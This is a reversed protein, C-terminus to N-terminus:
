AMEKKRAVINDMIGRPGQPADNAVGNSNYWLMLSVNKSECTSLEAIKDRGIQTDWLADVLVYEYGMTAVLDIFQKQDNYNCSEDQWILWSWTYKGTGYKQSAEFRPEVVDYPITTEVLPKM